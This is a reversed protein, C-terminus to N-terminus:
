ADIQEKPVGRSRLRARKQAPTLDSPLSSLITAPDAKKAAPASPAGATGNVIRDTPWERLFRASPKDYGGFGTTSTGSGYRTNLSSFVTHFDEWRQPAGSALRARLDVLNQYGSARGGFTEKFEPPAEAIMQDLGAILKQRYQETVRGTKPAAQAAKK